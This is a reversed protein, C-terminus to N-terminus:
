LVHIYIDAVGSIISQQMGCRTRNLLAGSIPCEFRTWGHARQNHKAQQKQQYTLDSFQSNKKQKKFDLEFCNSVNLQCNSSLVFFVLFCFTEDTNRNHSPSSPPDKFTFPTYDLTHKFM